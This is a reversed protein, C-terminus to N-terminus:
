INIRKSHEDSMAENYSYKLIEQTWPCVIQLLAIPLTFYYIGTCMICLTLACRRFRLQYIEHAAVVVSQNVKQKYRM